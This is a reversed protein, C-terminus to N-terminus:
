RLGVVETTDVAGRNRCRGSGSESQAFAGSQYDHTSASAGCPYADNLSYRDNLIAVYKQDLGASAALIIRTGEQDVKGIWAQSFGGTNVGIQCVETFLEEHDRARVILMNIASLMAYIRNLYIIKNEDARRLSIDRIAATVLLGEITELPSL